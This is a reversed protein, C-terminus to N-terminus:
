AVSLAAQTAQIGVNFLKLADINLTLKSSLTDLFGGTKGSESTLGYLQSKAEKIRSQLTQLSAAMAQGFEGNQQEKSLTNYAKAAENYAGVLDRLKDKLNTAGSEVTALSKAANVHEKAFREFDNGAMSLQHTLNSLGKAADRLKSDYQTTELKFRTIVDAM